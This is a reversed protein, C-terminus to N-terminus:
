HPIINKLLFWSLLSMGILVAMLVFIWSGRFGSEKKNEIPNSPRLAKLMAEARLFIEDQETQVTQKKADPLPDPKNMKLLINEFEALVQMARFRFTPMDQIPIQTHEHYILANDNLELYIQKHTKLMGIILPTFLVSAKPTPAHFKYADDLSSINTKMLAHQSNTFISQHPVVKLAPFQLKKLEATFITICTPKTKPDDNQYILDDAIRIFAMNDSFTFVNQYQHFYQTLFELKKATLVSIVSPKEKDFRDGNQKALSALKASRTNMTAVVGAGAGIVILILLLNM